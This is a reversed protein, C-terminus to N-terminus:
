ADLEGTFKQLLSWSEPSTKARWEKYFGSVSLAKRFRGFEPENFALGKQKLETQLSAFLAAMDERQKVAAESLNRDLIARLDGPLATLNASNAIVSFGDWMHNTMSCYKQVEYFKFLSVHTLPNEQADALHTQLASYAEKINVSVPSSGFHRFISQQVAIGPIRIKLNKLDEPGNIPRLSSTVQRFGNNFVKKFVTLGSKSFDARIHDGFEGDWAAWVQSYDKFVYGMGSLNVNPNLPELFLLSTAVMDLAGGRVQTLMDPESGLQSNPFVRLELRGGSEEGIKKAAEQQRVNMPHNVAQAHGLKITFEAATATKSYISIAPISAAMATGCAILQRRNISM